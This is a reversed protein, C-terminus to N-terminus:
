DARLRRQPPQGVLQRRDRTQQGPRQLRGQGSMAPVQIGSRLPLDGKRGTFAAGLRGPQAEVPTTAQPPLPMPAQSLRRSLAEINAVIERMAAPKQLYIDAGCEFARVRDEVTDHASIVIVGLTPIQRLHRCASYGDEGPLGLDLLVIDVPEVVLQRYAAEASDTGWTQYGSAVLYDVVADRLDHEDEVVAIRPRPTTRAPSTM